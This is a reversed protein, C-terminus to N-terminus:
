LISFSHPDRDLVQAASYNDNLMNADGTKAEHNILSAEAREEDEATLRSAQETGMLAKAFRRAAMVAIYHRAAQPLSEFELLWTISCKLSRDFVFTKNKRDWLFGGRVVADVFADPGDPDVELMAGTVPIKNDADRALQYEYDTNWHYGKTQVERSTTGLVDKAIAVDGLGADSLDSVPAEGIGELMLNVAQLETTPTTFLLTSM